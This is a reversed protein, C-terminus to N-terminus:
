IMLCLIKAGDCILIDQHQASSHLFFLSSNSRLDWCSLFCCPWDICLQLSDAFRIECWNWLIVRASCLMSASQCSWELLAYCKSLKVPGSWCSPVSFRGFSDCWPGPAHDTFRPLPTFYQVCLSSPSLSWLWTQTLSKFPREQTKDFCGCRM